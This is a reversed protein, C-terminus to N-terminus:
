PLKLLHQKLQFGLKKWCNGTKWSGAIIKEVNSNVHQAISGLIPLSYVIEATWKTLRIRVIKSKRKVANQKGSPEGNWPRLISKRRDNIPSVLPLNAEMAAKIYLTVCCRSSGFIPKSSFYSCIRIRLMFAVFVWTAELGAMRYIEFTSLWAAVVPFQRWM